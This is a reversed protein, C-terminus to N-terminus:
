VIGAGLAAAALFLLAAVVLRVGEMTMGRLHRRGILAGVCGAVCALAILLITRPHALDAHADSGAAFALGAAYIVLRVVDVMTSVVNTTGVYEDKTLGVRLLFPARLAGQMGSIGGFFGSLAGGIPLARPPLALKQYRPWLELAAFVALLAAIMLKLWTVEATASGIGYTVLPTARAITTMLAAGVLAAAIAPVGFRLVVARKAWRGVLALKFLNNVLHVVATAAIAVDLPFFVAYVPMLVTGLGFGSVLSVAGILAGVLPILLLDV